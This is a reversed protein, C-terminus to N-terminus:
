QRCLVAGWIRMLCYIMVTFLGASCLWPYDPSIDNVYTYNTSTNSQYRLQTIVPSYSGFLNILVGTLGSASTVPSNPTTQVALPMVTFDDVLAFFQDPPLYGDDIRGPEDTALAPVDPVEAAMSSFSTFLLLSFSLLILAVSLYSSIRWM